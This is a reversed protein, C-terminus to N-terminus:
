VRVRSSLSRRRKWESESTIKTRNKGKCHESCARSDDDTTSLNDTAKVVRTMIHPRKLHDDRKWFDEGAPRESREVYNMRKDGTRKQESFDKKSIKKALHSKTRPEDESSGKDSQEISEANTYCFKCKQVARDSVPHEACIKKRGHEHDFQKKNSAVHNQCACIHKVLTQYKSTPYRNTGLEEKPLGNYQKCIKCFAKSENEFGQNKLQLHKTCTLHKSNGYMPTVTNESNEANLKSQAETNQNASSEAGLVEKRQQIHSSSSFHKCKECPSAKLKSEAETHQKFMRKSCKGTTEQNLISHQHNQQLASHQVRNCFHCKSEETQLFPSQSTLIIVEEHQKLPVAQSFM